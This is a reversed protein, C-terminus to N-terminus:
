RDRTERRSGSESAGRAKNERHGSNSRFGKEAENASSGREFAARDRSEGTSGSRLPSGTEAVAQRGKREKSGRADTAGRRCSQPRSARLQVLFNRLTTLNGATDEGCAWPNLRCTAGSSYNWSRTGRREGHGLCPQCFNDGLNIPLTLPPASRFMNSARPDALGKIRRSASVM